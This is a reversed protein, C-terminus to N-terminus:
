PTSGALPHEQAHETAELFAEELAAVRTGLEHLVIGAAAALEKVQAQEMGTVALAGDPETTVTAGHETLAAALRSAQPSRVTM